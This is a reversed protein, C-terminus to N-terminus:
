YYCYYYYDDIAGHTLGGYRIKDAQLSPRVACKLKVHPDAYRGVLGDCVPVHRMIAPSPAHTHTHQAWPLGHPPNHPMCTDCGPWARLLCTPRTPTWLVNM